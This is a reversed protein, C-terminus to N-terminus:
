ILEEGQILSMKGLLHSPSSDRSIYSVPIHSERNGSIYRPGPRDNPSTVRSRCVPPVVVQPQNEVIVNPTNYPPRIPRTIIPSPQLRVSQKSKKGDLQRISRNKIGKGSILSLAKRLKREEEASKKEAM